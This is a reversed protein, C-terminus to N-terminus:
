DDDFDTDSIGDESDTFDSDHLDYQDHNSSHETALITGFAAHANSNTLEIMWLHQQLLSTVGRSYQDSNCRAADIKQKVRVARKSWYELTNQMEATLLKQEEECRKMHLYSDTIDKKLSSPVTSNTHHWEHQKWIDDDPSLVDSLLLPSFSPSIESSVANYDSLLQRARNTEKSVGASLRKAIKQGDTICLSYWNM